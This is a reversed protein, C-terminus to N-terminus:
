KSKKYAEITQVLLAALELPISTLEISATGGEYTSVTGKGYGSYKKTSELSFHLHAPRKEERNGPAVTEPAAAVLTALHARLNQEGQENEAIKAVIAAHYTQIDKFGALLVEAAKAPTLGPTVRVTVPTIKTGKDTYLTPERRDIDKPYDGTFNHALGHVDLWDSMTVGDKTLSVYTNAGPREAYTFGALEAVERFYNKLVTLKDASVTQATSVLTGQFIRSSLTAAKAQPKTKVTAM